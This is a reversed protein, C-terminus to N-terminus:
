NIAGVLTAVLQSNQFFAGVGEPGLCQFVVTDPSSLDVTSLTSVESGWAYEGGGPTGGGSVDLITGASQLLVQCLAAAGPSQSGPVSLVTKGAVVYLGAPLGLSIVVTFGGGPAIAACSPLLCSASYAHSPGSPGPPGQAGQPGQVGQAGLPGQPGTPGQPGQAGQPGTPGIAGITVSFGATLKNSNTVTLSYSGAALGTLLNAVISNNTFSAV